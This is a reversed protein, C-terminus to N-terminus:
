ILTKLPNKTKKFEELAQPLDFFIFGIKLTQSFESLVVFRLM